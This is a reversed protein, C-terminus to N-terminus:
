LGIKMKAPANVARQIDPINIHFINSVTLPLSLIYRNGNNACTKASLRVMAPPIYVYM